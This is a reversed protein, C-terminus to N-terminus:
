CQSATPLGLAGNTSRSRRQACDRSPQSPTMLIRPSPRVDAVAAAWGAIDPTGTVSQPEPVKYFFLIHGSEMAQLTEEIEGGRGGRGSKRSPKM